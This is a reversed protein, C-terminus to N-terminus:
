KRKPRSVDVRAGTKGLLDTLSREFESSIDPAGSRAHAIEHLLTGAYNELNKLQSRKIIITGTSPDWLGLAEVFAYTEMRMTESIKIEKVNTPLGGILEVIIKPTAEYIAREPASLKSFQVFKFEFSDNWTQKFQTLDRMPNGSIDTEGSIRDRVNEPVTVIQYGANKAEEVYKPAQMLDSPTM